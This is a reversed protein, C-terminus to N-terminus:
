RLTLAVTKSFSQFYLINSIIRCLVGACSKFICSFALIGLYLLHLVKRNRNPLRNYQFPTLNFLPYALLDETNFNTAKYFMTFTNMEETMKLIYVISM